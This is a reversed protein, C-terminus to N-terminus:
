VVNNERPKVDQNMDEPKGNGYICRSKVDQNMDELNAMGM